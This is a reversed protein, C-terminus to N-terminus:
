PTRTPTSNLKGTLTQLQPSEPAAEILAGHIERVIEVLLAMWM